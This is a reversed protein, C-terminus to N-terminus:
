PLLEFSLVEKAFDLAETDWEDTDVDITKCINRLTNWEKDDFFVTISYATPKVIGKM